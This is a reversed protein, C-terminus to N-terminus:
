HVSAYKELLERLFRKVAPKRECFDIIYASNDYVLQIFIRGTASHALTEDRFQRLIDLTPSDHGLLYSAACVTPEPETGPGPEPEQDGRWGSQIPYKGPLATFSQFDEAPVLETYESFDTPLEYVTKDHPTEIYYHKMFMTGFYIQFETDGPTKIGYAIHSKGTDSAWTDTIEWTTMSSDQMRVNWSGLWADLYESAAFVPQISLFALVAATTLCKKVTIM